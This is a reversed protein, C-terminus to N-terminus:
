KKSRKKNKFMNKIPQYVYHLSTFNQPYEKYFRSIMNNIAAPTTFEVLLKLIVVEEQTFVRNTTKEYHNIVTLYNPNLKNKENISLPKNDFM